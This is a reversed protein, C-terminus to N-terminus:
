GRQYLFFLLGNYEGNGARCVNNSLFM